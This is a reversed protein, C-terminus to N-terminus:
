QGSGHSAAISIQHIGGARVQDMVDVLIGTNAKKDATIVAAGQPNESHLREINARVARIDIMRKDMWIENNATIAIVINALPKLQSTQAQPRNVDIGSEKIFSTTVIFFILMIFVIDLMPTMNIEVEEELNASRKRRM